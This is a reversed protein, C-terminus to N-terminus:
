QVVRFFAASGSIPVTYPSTANSLTVWPGAPNAARQLVGCGPWSITVTNGNGTITLRGPAGGGVAPLVTLPTTCIQSAGLQDVMTLTINTTGPGVQTGAAPRQTILRASSLNGVQTTLDPVPVLGNCGAQVVPNTQPCTFQSTETQASGCIGGPYGYADYEAWGYVIIGFASSDTSYLTHPGNPVPMQAGSYGSAGIPLFSSVALGDLFIHGAAASATPAMVNIFNDDTFDVTPTQVVYNTAFLSTPPILVMFPDSKEVFDFDSSDAYQAVQIPKTSTIQAKTALQVENFQGRLLGPLAVGNTRVTTGDLMAVCRFTDGKLRTALPVTVFNTGWLELPFLQEVLYDAFFVNADPINACQHSGFVAIPQDAIVSTGTIDAVSNTNRLQYTQGQMLTFSFASIGMSSSPVISVTTNDMTAVIAFQSGNLEQEGTFVNRYSLVLYSKGISRTSLGLFADTTFPIHNYGYVSVSQSAVVHIGNTQILNNANGLDAVAPLTVTVVGGVPGAPITFNTTFPVVLGPMSVTGLTGPAGTIFLQPQPPHNTDPAYNGPFTLWYETGRSTSLCPETTCCVTTGYQRLTHGCVDRVGNITLSCCGGQLPGSFFPQATLLWVIRPDDTLIARTIPTPVGACSLLYSGINQASVPDLPASFVVVIKQDGCAAYTSLVQPSTQSPGFVWTDDGQGVDGAFLVTQGHASDHAMAHYARAPPVNTTVLSWGGGNWEWTDSLDGGSLSYGGFLGVSDCNDNYAMAHFARPGPGNIALLTWANGNWKWTDRLYADSQKGGFLLLQGQASGYAMAHGVRWGPNVPSNSVSLWQSGDFEWTDALESSGGFLVTRARGNDYAMAHGYRPGPNNTAPISQWTSGDWLWTDSFVGGLVNLGGYLVTRGIRSDYALASFFRPAPGSTAMRTWNTGSWEWTDGHDIGIDSSFGGFLVVRGRASDYAMSHGLRGGPSSVNAKITINQFHATGANNPNGPDNIIQFYGGLTSGDGIDLAGSGVSPGFEFVPSNVGNASFMLANKGNGDVFYTMELHISDGSNYTIGNNASFSYFSIGGFQVVEHGDTNVIFQIDGNSATSFLLGAEKRPSIPNGTLTLDFSAQFYDNHQFQYASAGGNNSFQWADRNAFGTPASMGQESLSILSPYNSVDTFTAGPVDNFVRPTVTASNITGVQTYVGSAGALSWFKGQCCSSPVVTINFGCSNQNGSADRAIATVPTTGLPFISGSPPNATATPSPNCNDTASVAFRVQAGQFSTAAVVRDPPCTIVPATTDVVTVTQSCTNSNGCADTFLWTRIIIQSFVAITAVGNTVLPAYNPNNTFAGALTYSGPGNGWLNIEVGSNTFLLGGLDLFPNSTPFILGDWVFVTNSGSGPSLAYTGMNTGATIDFFGSAAINGVFDVVGIAASGGGTFSIHAVGNTVTGIIAITVNTGSCADAVMPPDFSWQAGCEVTKNSACTLVPPTTDATWTYVVNTSNTNGYADNITITFTRNSACATGGDLHTVNTTTLGCNGTATVQAKVSADTPLAANAPNCGLSGGTPVSTFVPAGTASRLSADLTYSAGAGAGGISVVQTLSYLTQNIAGGSNTNAYNPPVLNGSATLLTTEVGTRNGFDYYTNYTVNQGTGSNVQGTMKAVINSPSPGFGVDSWSIHLDRGALGLSTAQINLDMAPNCPSGLAPKTEASVIVVSWAGDFSSSTYTAIGAPGATVVYSTLGDSITLTATALASGAEAVTGLAVALVILERM